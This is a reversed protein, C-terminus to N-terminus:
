SSALTKRTPTEGSEQENIEQLLGIARGLADNVKKLKANEKELQEIRKNLQKETAMVARRIEDLSVNRARTGARPVLGREVDGMYVASRWRRLYYVSIGQDDLWRRKQGYPLAEYTMVVERIEEATYGPTVSM